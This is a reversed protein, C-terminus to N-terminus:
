RRSTLLLVEEEDEEGEEEEEKWKLIILNLNVHLTTWSSSEYHYIVMGM